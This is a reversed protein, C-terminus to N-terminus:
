SGFTQEYWLSLAKYLLKQADDLDMWGAAFPENGYPESYTWSTDCFAIGNPKDAIYATWKEGRARFYFPYTDITGEIQVPCHGTKLTINIHLFKGKL